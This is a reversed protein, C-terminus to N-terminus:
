AKCSQFPPWHIGTNLKGASRLTHDPRATIVLVPLYGDAETEKLDEMVQFGDMGPKHLDLLILGYHNYRHFDCVQRSDTTWHVCTYGAVRLIGEILRVNSEMDDVVLIPANLIDAETLM